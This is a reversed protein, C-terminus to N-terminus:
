KNRFVIETSLTFSSLRRACSSVGRVPHVSQQSAPDTKTEIVNKLIRRDLMRRLLEYCFDRRTPQSLLQTQTRWRPNTTLVKLSTICWGAGSLLGFWWLTLLTNTHTNSKELTKQEFIFSNSWLQCFFFAETLRTLMQKEWIKCSTELHCLLRHSEQLYNVGRSYFISKHPTKHRFSSIWNETILNVYKFTLTYDAHAPEPWLFRRWSLWKSHSGIHICKIVRCDACMTEAHFLAGPLYLFDCCM